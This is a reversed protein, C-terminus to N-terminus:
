RVAGGYFYWGLGITFIFCGYLAHEISVLLTSASRAYTWAFLVGGIVTMVVSLTNEFVIHVYGFALASVAIMTWPNRFLSQYRHFLFTRYIIEQPYVSLLPYFVMIALWLVPNRNVLEFLRSPEFLAVGLGIILASAFFTLLIQRLYPRIAARNWFASRDFTPDRWMTFTCGLAVLVLVPIMPLPIADLAYLTPMGVFLLGFEAALYSRRAVSSPRDTAARSNWAAHFPTM